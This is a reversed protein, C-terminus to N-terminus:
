SWSRRLARSAPCRSTRATGIRVETVTIDGVGDGGVAAVDVTFLTGGTTPGCPLGLLSQDVTYSGGGNDVVQFTKNTFSSLWSGIHISSTATGCLAFRPDLQFTVHAAAAPTTDGRTYVFPVSVCTHAGSLCLGATVPTVRSIAPDTFVPLTYVETGVCDFDDVAVV